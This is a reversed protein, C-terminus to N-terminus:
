QLSQPRLTSLTDAHQKTIDGMAALNDYRSVLIGVGKVLPTIVPVPVGVAMLLFRASPLMAAKALGSSGRSPKPEITEWVLGMSGSAKVSLVHDTSGDEQNIIRIEWDSEDPDKVFEARQGLQLRVEGLSGGKNLRDVCLAQFYHRKTTSLCEQLEASNYEGLSELGMGDTARLFAEVLLSDASPGTQLNLINSINLNTAVTALELIALESRLARERASAFLRRTDGRPYREALQELQDLSM